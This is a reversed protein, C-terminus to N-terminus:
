ATAKFTGDANRAQNQAQKSKVNPNRFYAWVGVAVAAAGTLAGAITRQSTSTSQVAEFIRTSLTPKKNFM